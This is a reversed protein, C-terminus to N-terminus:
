PADRIFSADEDEEEEQPLLFTLLAGPLSPINGGWGTLCCFISRVLIFYVLRQGPPLFIYAGRGESTLLKPSYAPLLM